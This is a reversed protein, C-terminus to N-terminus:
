FVEQDIISMEVFNSAAMSVATSKISWKKEGIHSRQVVSIFTSFNFKPVFLHCKKM